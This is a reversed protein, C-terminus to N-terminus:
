WEVNNKIDPPPPPASVCFGVCFDAPPSLSSDENRVMEFDLPIPFKLHILIPSCLKDARKPLCQYLFM